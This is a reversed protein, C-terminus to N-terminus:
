GPAALASDIAAKLEPSGPEVASAFGRIVKGDKGVLYKHFNWRPPGAAASLFQYVPSAGAGTTSVKSFMPFSVGFNKQCFTAIQSSSGPEQGGFDNSPFGLVAFGKGEYSQHLKQLGEYQPTYGCQSATNVVLLVKGQYTSLKEEQGDLRAASLHFFSPGSPAARPAEAPRAGGSSPPEPTAAVPTAASPATAPTTAAPARDCAVLLLPLLAPALPRLSFVM